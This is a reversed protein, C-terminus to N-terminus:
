ELIRFAVFQVNRGALKYFAGTEDIFFRGGLERVRLYERAVADITKCLGGLPERDEARTHGYSAFPWIQDNSNASFVVPWDWRRRVQLRRFDEFEERTIVHVAPQEPM